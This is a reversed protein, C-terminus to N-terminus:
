GAASSDAPGTPPMMPKAGHQRTMTDTSSRADVLSGAAPVEHLMEQLVPQLAVCRLAKRQSRAVSGGQPMTVTLEVREIMRCSRALRKVGDALAATALAHVSEDM